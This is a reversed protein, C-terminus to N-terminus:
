WRKKIMAGDEQSVCTSFTLYAKQLVKKPPETTYIKFLNFVKRRYDETKEDSIENKVEEM